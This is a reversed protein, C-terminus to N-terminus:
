LELVLVPCSSRSVCIMMCDGDQRERDTLVHDRHNPTGSVVATECSGCIGEECDHLVDVGAELVVDLISRDPPITLDLGSEALRVTFTDADDPLADDRDPAAFLEVRVQNARGSREMVAAVEDALRPPGCVYVLHDSSVDGLLEPVTPMTGEDKPLISVANGYLGLESLFAMSSRSRGYYSLRWPLGSRHVEAIMPLFPTIGIGGAIFLYGKAAELSFHNRPANITLIDGARVTRHIYETGGRGAPERLVAIRYSRAEAPSGCLSYQRSSGDAVQVDIHAGPQWEPLDVGDLTELRLSVVNEAEYTM